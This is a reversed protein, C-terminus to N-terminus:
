VKKYSLLFKGLAVKSLKFNQTKKGIIRSLLWINLPNQGKQVVKHSHNLCPADFFTLVDCAFYNFFQNNLKHYEVL